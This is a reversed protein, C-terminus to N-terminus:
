ARICRLKGILHQWAEGDGAAENPRQRERKWVHQAGRSVRAICHNDGCAGHPDYAEPQAIQRDLLEVKPQFAYPITHHYIPNHAGYKEKEAIAASFPFGLNNQM